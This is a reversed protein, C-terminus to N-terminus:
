RLSWSFKESTELLKRNRVTEIGFGEIGVFVLTKSFRNTDFSRVFLADFLREVRGM